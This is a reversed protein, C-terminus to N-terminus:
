MGVRHKCERVSCRAWSVGSTGPTATRRGAAPASSRRLWRFITRPPLVAMVMLAHNPVVHCNGPYKDYGYHREIERRADRWDAYQGRWKRVDAIPSGRDIQALGVDILREVDRSVFAEAEMAAWLKAADVAAGDHRVRAVQEALRAALSPDGAAAIAWGDILSRARFQRVRWQALRLAALTKAKL